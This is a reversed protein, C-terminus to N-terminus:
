WELNERYYSAMDQAQEALIRRREELPLKLFARREVLSLPQKSAMPEGLVQGAEEATLAEEAFARLVNRRLWEPEEPPLELPEQKKWGHKSILICWDKYHSDTIIGLDRLRYLLAQISMGFRKKLLVLEAPELFARKTGVERRLTEAPVLFAKGFRFAAKEEDVEEAPNLLLHGLEHALNLRQRDGPVHRRTVVAASVVEGRGDRAVASIGDFRESADIELVHVFHDELTGVVSAIADTGLNWISRLEGAAREADALSGVRMQRVPLDSGDHQQTLEQVRVRQELAYTVLSEVREMEALGLGSRRRYGIFEVSVTPAAWLYASKVGLAAAMRNLVVPSPRARGNEYKSLAQKTVIGGM